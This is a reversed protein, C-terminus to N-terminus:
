RNRSTQPTELKPSSHMSNSLIDMYSYKLAHVNKNMKPFEQLTSQRPRLTLTQKTEWFQLSNWPRRVRLLLPTKHSKLKQYHTDLPIMTHNEWSEQYVAVNGTNTYELVNTHTYSIYIWTAQETVWATHRKLTSKEIFLWTVLFM